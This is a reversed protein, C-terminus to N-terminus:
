KRGTTTFIELIKNQWAQQKMFDSPPQCIYNLRPGVEVDYAIGDAGKCRLAENGVLVCITAKPRPPVTVCSSALIAIIIFKILRPM